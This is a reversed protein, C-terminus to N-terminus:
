ALVTVRGAVPDVEIEAGDPIETLAGAVGVVAPIGLERAIVATHCLLGGYETVVGGAMALVANYTPVTLRTVIIDGPETRDLAEDASAVVRAVGRYPVSGIGTGTLDDAGRGGAEVADMDGDLLRTALLVGRMMEPMRGPLVEVPPPALPPGLVAVPTLATNAARVDARAALEDASPGSGGRLLAALEAAGADFVHDPEAIRGGELFRGGIELVVRRLVGAPWQYTLPGNEDRLGYLLRADEVITDFEDLHESPVDARVAALAGDGNVIARERDDLISALVIDPLEGLTLDRIDYGTTLRNGYEDLYADLLEGARVSATRVDDLSNPAVGARGLEDRIAALSRTPASTSPSAGALAAMAARQDLQWDEAAVLLRSIPGLDSTHLRFHMTTSWRLHEIVADLHDALADDDLSREDVSGLGRNTSVLRPKWEQEWREYEARWIREDIAVVSRKARRRFEPHIRTMLWLLPKPPLPLNRDAGVLPVLRVYMRGNVFAARMSALPAGLMELGTALGADMSESVIDRVIRSSMPDFHTTDLEWTGPGPPDWSVTPAGM